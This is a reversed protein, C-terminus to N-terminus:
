TEEDQHNHPTFTLRIPPPQHIAYQWTALHSLPPHGPRLLLARTLLFVFPAIPHKACIGFTMRVGVKTLQGGIATMYREGARVRFLIMRGVSFKTTPSHKSQSDTMTPLWNMPSGTM